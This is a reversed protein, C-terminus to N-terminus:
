PKLLYSVVQHEDTPSKETYFIAFTQKDNISMGAFFYPEELQLFRTPSSFPHKKKARESIYVTNNTTMLYLKTEKKNLFLSIIDTNALASLDLPLLNYSEFNMTPSSRQAEHVRNDKIFYIHKGDATIWPCASAIRPEKLAAQRAGFYGNAQRTLSFLENGQWLSSKSATFVGHNLNGSLTLSGYRLLSTDNTSILFTEPSRTLRAGTSIKLSHLSIAQAASPQIFYYSKGDKSLQGPQANGALSLESAKVAHKMSSQCIGDLALVSFILLYLTNRTKM